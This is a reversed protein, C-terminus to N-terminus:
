YFYFKQFYKCRSPNRAINRKQRAQIRKTFKKPSINRQRNKELINKFDFGEINDTETYIQPVATTRKIKMDSYQEVFLLNTLTSKGVSVPGIIIINISM